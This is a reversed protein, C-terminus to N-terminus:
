PQLSLTFIQRAGTLSQMINFLLICAVHLCEPLVEALEQLHWSARQQALLGHPRRQQTAAGPGSASASGESRRSDVYVCVGKEAPM